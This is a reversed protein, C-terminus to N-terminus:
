QSRRVMARIDRALQNFGRVWAWRAYCRLAMRAIPDHRPDLVFYECRDHKGTKDAIRHVNYKAYLGKAQDTDSMGGSYAHPYVM